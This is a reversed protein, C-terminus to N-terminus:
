FAFIVFEERGGGWSIKKCRFGDAPAVSNGQLDSRYQPLRERTISSCVFLSVFLCISLLQCHEIVEDGGRVQMWVIEMGFLVDIREATKACRLRALSLSVGCDSNMLLDTSYM